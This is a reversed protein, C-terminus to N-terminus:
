VHKIIKTGYTPFDDIETIKTCDQVCSNNRTVMTKNSHYSKTKTPANDENKKILKMRSQTEM